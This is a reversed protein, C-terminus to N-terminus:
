EVYHCRTGYHDWGEMLAIVCLICNVRRIHVFRRAHVGHHHAPCWWTLSSAPLSMGSNVVRAVAHVLGDLPTHAGVWSIGSM